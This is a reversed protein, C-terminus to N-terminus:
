FNRFRKELDKRTNDINQLKKVMSLKINLRAAYPKFLRAAEEKRVLIELPLLSSQEFCSLFKEVFEKTYDATEALHMEFLFGSDHDVIMLAYPFFPREGRSQVPTPAHFFDAEWILPAPKSKQKLRQIRIEDLPVDPFGTKKRLLEPEKLEDRWFVKGQKVEPVRVLYTNKPADQLFGEDEAFRMCVDRAQELALTMFLVEDRNLFWPFYGPRYSRFVPWANKGRCKLGLEHILERDDEQVSNRNEFSLMLCNQIYLADPNGPKVQGRHIKLYGQLGEAGQYVAIALFEGLEGMICCYGVEGTGPDQVGFIDSEKMWDWPQMKRFAIAAEYLTKWEKLSPDPRKM